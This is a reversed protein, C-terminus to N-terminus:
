GTSLQEYANSVIQKIFGKNLEEWRPSFGSLRQFSQLFFNNFGDITKLFVLGFVSLFTKSITQQTLVTSVM